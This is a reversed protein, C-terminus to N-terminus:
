NKEVPRAAPVRLPRDTSASTQELVDRWLSLSLMDRAEQLTLPKCFAEPGATRAKKQCKVPDTFPGDGRLYGPHLHTRKVVFFTSPVSWARFMHDTVGVFVALAFWGGLIILNLKLNKM